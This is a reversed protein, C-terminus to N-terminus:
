KSYSHIVECLIHSFEINYIWKCRKKKKATTAIYKAKCINYAAM